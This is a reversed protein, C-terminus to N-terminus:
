DSVSGDTVLRVDEIGHDRAYDLMKALDSVGNSAPLPAFQLTSLVGLASGDPSLFASGSDGPVGPTATLVDHSWGGGRSAVVTGVKPSLLTVGGRLESNGYSRVVEGPRAGDSDVGTPGGFVPVAASVAAVDAPDIRVLAFDNFACADPDTEDAAQMALWSNYALTGPRSAGAIEVPTGLPLSGARCGDVDTSTGTGSCHAAQGLYTDAGDTFVFNATCQAGDTRTQVGPHVGPATAVPGDGPAAVAAPGGLWAAAAVAAGTAVAVMLRRVSRAAM